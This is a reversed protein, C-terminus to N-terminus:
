QAPIENGAMTNFTAQIFDTFHHGAQKILIQLPLLPWGHKQTLQLCLLRPIGKWGYVQKQM